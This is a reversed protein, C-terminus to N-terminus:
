LEGSYTSTQSTTKVLSDYVDSRDEASLAKRHSESDLIARVTPPPACITVELGDSVQVPADAM